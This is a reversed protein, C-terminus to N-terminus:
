QQDNRSKRMSSLWERGAKWLSKQGRADNDFWNENTCKQLDILIGTPCLDVIRKWYFVFVLVHNYKNYWKIPLCKDSGNLIWHDWGSYDELKFLSWQLYQISM